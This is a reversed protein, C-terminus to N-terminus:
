LLSRGAALSLGRRQAGVVTARVSNGNYPLASCWGLLHPRSDACRGCAFRHEREGRRTLAL